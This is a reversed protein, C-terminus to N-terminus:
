QLCNFFIVLVLILLHASIPDSEHTGRDLKFCKTTKGVNVFCSEKDKLLTKIWNLFKEKFPRWIKFTRKDRDKKEIIKILAQKQLNSLEQNKFGM